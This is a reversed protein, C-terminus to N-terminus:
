VRKTWAAAPRALSRGYGALASYVGMVVIWVRYVAFRTIKAAIALRYANRARKRHRWNAWVETQQRDIDELKKNLEEPAKKLEDLLQCLYIGREAKREEIYLNRALDHNKTDEALKRLRRLRAPVDSESNWHLLRGPHAFGIHAGSFDIRAIGSCWEFEPPSYFRVNTFNATKEFSRGSFIAVGDFRAHSFSITLFRDLRAGTTEWLDKHQKEFAARAKDDMGVIASAVDRAWQEESKGTFEVRGNFFTSDFSAYAGFAAGAFSAQPGFAAFAFTAGAGFTAGAFTAKDGFTAGAFSASNGFAAGVFRAGYGFVVGAFSAWGGFVAGTFSARGPSFKKLHGGIELWGVGRWKCRSFDAFDGFEFGSFDIEDRPAESFDVGAFTVRDYKNAPDRRWANWADKGEAALDLFFKQNHVM